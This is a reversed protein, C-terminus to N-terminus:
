HTKLPKHSPLKGETTTMALSTPWRWLSNPRSDRNSSLSCNININSCYFLIRTYVKYISKKVNLYVSFSQLLAILM